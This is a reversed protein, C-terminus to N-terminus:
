LKPFDFILAFPKLFRPKSLETPDINNSLELFIFRSFYQQRSQFWSILTACINVVHLFFYISPM